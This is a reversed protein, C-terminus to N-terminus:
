WLRLYTKFKLMEKQINAVTKQAKVLDGTLREIDNQWLINDKSTMGATKKGLVEIATDLTAVFRGAKALQKDLMSLYEPASVAVAQSLASTQNIFNDISDLGASIDDEVGSAFRLVYRSLSDVTKIVGKTQTVLSVHRRDGHLLLTTMDKLSDVVEQLRWTYGVAESIGLVFTGNLTDTANIVPAKPPGNDIMLMRDGMVGADMSVASYGEHITLPQKTQITILVKEKTWTIKKVTGSFTGKVRVQDDIRLNGIKDFALVRTHPPSLLPYICYALAVCLMALFLSIIAYGLKRDSM